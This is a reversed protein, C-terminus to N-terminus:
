ITIGETEITVGEVEEHIVAHRTGVCMNHEHEILRGNMDVIVEYSDSETWM